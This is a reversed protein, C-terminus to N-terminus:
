WPKAKDTVGPWDDTRFPAAPLGAQNFLTAQPNAQWAYRAAQPASVKPSSVIVHDGEIKANAWHWQHDAGAVSFEGLREGKVVLGGATNFFKLKLAGSIKEASVFTPGASSIKQGYENALAVLALREGVTQKDRPHINDAEGTDVTVALACNKVTRATLAQAERLEAWADEGPLNKPAMFKPLSVIYFPFDGQSFTKRWDSIMAPLLSRYQHARQFNAEGQYWIAGRITFPALPAIMGNFLVSPLTPYNEYTLPLTHPPRCDASLAGRWEGALPIKQEGVVLSLDAAKSMFGGAAKNKFVRVALINKGPKLIGDGIFYARPNEVWSSAGVWRGNLYATDMKDVVGLHLVAKGAPLPDPLAIERRVWSIGPADGLGLEALGGPIAVAKWKSDDFEAASWVNNGADNEALWHMLFSGLEAGGKKHLREIEDLPQDFEKLPRLTEASTWSEAPTGGLCDVILGIPM